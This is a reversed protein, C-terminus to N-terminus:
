QVPQPQQEEVGFFNNAVYTKLLPEVLKRSAPTDPALMIKALAPDLLMRDLAAAAKAGPGLGLADVIWTSIQMIGRGKVIGYFSALVTQVQRASQLLGSTPAGTTIKTNIGDMMKLQGRVKNLTRIEKPSYLAEVAGKLRPETFLQNVKGVKLAPQTAGPAVSGATGRSRRGVWDAFAHQLGRRAQGTPDRKAQNVLEEMALRPNKSGIIASIAADPQAGIFIGASSKELERATSRATNRATILDAELQSVKNAARLSRGSLAEIEQRIGPFSVLVERHTDLFKEIAPPSFKGTGANVAGKSLKNLVYQRVASRAVTPDPLGDIILKLQKGSELSGSATDPRIFRGATTSAPVEKAFRAASQIARGTGERFRPAFIDRFFRIAHGAAAGAPDGSEALLVAQRDIARQLSTLADVVDGGQGKEGALRATKLAASIDPRLDQLDRFTLPNGKLVDDRFEAFWRRGTSDSLADLKAPTNNFRGRQTTIEGMTDHLSLFDDVNARPNIPVTGNPDIERFLRNKTNTLRTLEGRVADDLELSAATGIDSGSVEMARHQNVEDALNQMEVRADALQKETSTVVEDRVMIEDINQSEFVRGAATAEDGSTATIGLADDFQRNLAVQNEIARQKFFPDDVRGRELGILGLDESATGTTPKVSTGQAEKIAADINEIAKEPELVVKRLANRALEEAMEDSQFIQKFVRRLGGLIFVAGSLVPIATGTITGAELGLRLRQQINSDDPKIGTPLFEPFLNGITQVDATDVALVDAGTAGGIQALWRTAAGGKGIAQAVAAGAKAGGAGPVGFQTVTAVVDEAAAATEIDPIVSRVHEAWVDQGAVDLPFTVVGTILDRIGKVISRGMSFGAKREESTLPMKLQGPVTEGAPTTREPGRTLMPEGSRSEFITTDTPSFTPDTRPPAPLADEAGGLAGQLAPLDTRPPPTAAERALQTARRMAKLEEVTPQDGAMEFVGVGEVNVQAM